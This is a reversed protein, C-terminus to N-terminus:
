TLAIPDHGVMGRYIRLAHVASSDGGMREYGLFGMTKIGAVDEHDVVVLEIDLALRQGALVPEVRDVLRDM